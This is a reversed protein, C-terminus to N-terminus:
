MAAMRASESRGVSTILHHYYRRSPEENRIEYECGVMGPQYNRATVRQLNVIADQGMVIQCGKLERGLPFMFPGQTGVLFVKFGNGSLDVLRFLEGGMMLRLNCFRLTDYRESKRRCRTLADPLRCIFATKGNELNFHSVAVQLRLERREPGPLRLRVFHGAKMEGNLRFPKMLQVAGNNKIRILTRFRILTKELQVQVPTNTYAVNLLVRLPDAMENSKNWLSEMWKMAM